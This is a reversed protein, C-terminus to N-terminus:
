YAISFGLGMGHSTYRYFADNSQSNTFRYGIDITLTARGTRAAFVPQSWVIGGRWVEDHRLPSGPLTAGTADLALTSTYRKDTWLVQGSLDAGSAFAHTFGTQAATADSAYPDDYVGDDFFGAPTTVLGPPVAGFTSRISAQAHVGTRDALSQAVRVLGYVLGANGNQSELVPTVVTTTTHVPVVMGTGRGRGYVGGSMPVEESIYDTVVQGEYRKTGVHVEGILTTRSPLNALLSGFVQNETQTLDTLDAFVRHDIRYGSRLTLGAGPHFEANASAGLGRYDANAWADGNRRGVFTGNIFFRRDTDGSGGLRYAFGVRHLNYSWDGPSDYTGGDFDYFVRGREGAFLHEFGVAGNVNQRRESASQDEQYGEFTSGVSARMSPQASSTTAAAIVILAAMLASTAISPRDLLSRAHM